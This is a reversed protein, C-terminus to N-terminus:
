ILSKLLTRLFAKRVVMFIFFQKQMLYRPYLAHLFIRSRWTKPVSQNKNKNKM